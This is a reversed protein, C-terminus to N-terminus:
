PSTRVPQGLWVEILVVKIGPQSSTVLNRGLLCRATVFCIGFCAQDRLSSIAEEAICVNGADIVTLTVIDGWLEENFDDLLLLAIVRYLIHDLM